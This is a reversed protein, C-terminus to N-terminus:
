ALSTATPKKSSRPSRTKGAGPRSDNFEEGGSIRWRCDGIGLGWDWFRVRVGQERVQPPPHDFHKQSVDFRSEQASGPQLNM